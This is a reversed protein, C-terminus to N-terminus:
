YSGTRSIKQEREKAKQQGREAISQVRETSLSVKKPQEGSPKNEFTDSSDIM